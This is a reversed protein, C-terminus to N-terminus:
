PNEAPGAEGMAESPIGLLRPRRHMSQRVHVFRESARLCQDVVVRPLQENRQRFTGLDEVRV